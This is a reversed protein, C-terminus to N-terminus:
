FNPGSLAYDYYSKGKSRPSGLSRPLRLWYPVIVGSMDWDLCVPWVRAPEKPVGYATRLSVPVTYQVSCNLLLTTSHQATYIFCTRVLDHCPCHVTHPKYNPSLRQFSFTNWNCIYSATEHLINETILSTWSCEGRPCSPLQSSTSSNTSQKSFTVITIIFCLWSINHTNM